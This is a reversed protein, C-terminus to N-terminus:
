HIITISEMSSILLQSINNFEEKTTNFNFMLLSNDLSTMLMNNYIETDLANSIFILNIWRTGNITVLSNKLWKLGPIMREYTKVMYEQFQSLQNPAVKVQRNFTIGISSTAKKDSYIHQPRNANPYKKEAVESPMIKFGNPLIFIVKDDYLSVKDQAICFTPQLLILFLILFLNTIQITFGGQKAWVIRPQAFNKWAYYVPFRRPKQCESNIQRTVSLNFVGILIYIIRIM